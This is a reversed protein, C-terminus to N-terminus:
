LRTASIVPRLGADHIHLILIPKDLITNRPVRIFVGDRWLATNFAAFADTKYDVLKGFYDAVLGSNEAGARHLSEVTLQNKPSIIRSLGESYQGNLFVICNSEYGSLVYPAIDGISSSPVESFDAATLIPEISRTIPTFRFEENKNGPFGLKEFYQIADERLERASHFETRRFAEVIERKLDQTAPTSSTTM